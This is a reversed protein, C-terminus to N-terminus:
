TASFTLMCTPNIMSSVYAEQLFTRGLTYQTANAARRLPFYKTKRDVFPLGLELDFSAYPLTINVTTDESTENGLLFSVSANQKQLISNLTENVLYRDITSNWTIGFAEEFESCVDEPLWLYPVTSDIFTLIPRSSLTKTNGTTDSFAISHLGVVLDRSLTETM